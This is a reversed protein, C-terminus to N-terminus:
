LHLIRYLWSLKGCFGELHKKGKVEGDKEIHSLFSRGQESLWSKKSLGLCLVEGDLRMRLWLNGNEMKFEPSDIFSHRFAFVPSDSDPDALIVLEDTLKMLYPTWIGGDLHSFVNGLSVSVADKPIAKYSDILDETIDVFASRVRMEDPVAKDSAVVRASRESAAKLCSPIDEGKFYLSAFVAGFCDGAGVTSKVNVRKASCGFLEGTRCNYGYSGYAGYTVLILEINKYKDSLEKLSVQLEMGETHTIERTVYALENENMKLINARELAFVVTDLSYFPERLNLDLLTKEAVGSAILDSLLKKNNETRLALTGFAFLDFGEKIIDPNVRIRDYATDTAVSFRPVGKEDLLVTCTGTSKEPDIDVYACSVGLNQAESLAEVGLDDDGVASLIFAEDKCISAHAAFNFPAGGISRSEGYIDWIIEGFSLIKM